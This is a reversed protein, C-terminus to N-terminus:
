CVATKLVDKYSRKEFVKLKDIALKKSRITAAVEFKLKTEIKFFLLFAVRKLLRSPKSLRLKVKFIEINKFTQMYGLQADTISSKKRFYYATLYIWLFTRDYISAQSRFVVSSKSSSEEFTINRQFHKVHFPEQFRNNRTFYNVEKLEDFISNFM